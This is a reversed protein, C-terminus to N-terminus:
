RGSLPRALRLEWTLIATRLPTDILWLGLGAPRDDLEEFPRVWRVEAVAEVPEPDEPITLSVTVHDGVDFPRVTAVFLGGGGVNKTVGGHSVERIRLQVPVELPTRGKRDNRGPDPDRPTRDDPLVSM